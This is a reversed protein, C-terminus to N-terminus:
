DSIDLSPLAKKLDADEADTPRRAVRDPDRATGVGSDPEDSGPNSLPKHAAMCYGVAVCAILVVLLYSAWWRKKPM